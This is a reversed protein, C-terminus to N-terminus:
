NNNCVLTEGSRFACSSVSILSTVMKKMNMSFFRKRSTIDLYFCYSMLLVDVYCYNENIGSGSDDLLTINVM